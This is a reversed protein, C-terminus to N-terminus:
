GGAVAERERAALERKLVKGAASVPIADIFVVDRLRKYHTVRDNVAAMVSEATLAAGADDARRVVYAVPLEGAAEDPRGVVAAGAVGPVGFLIEELERPFVNYGKYLLMDKTRDVISLYGDEDLIGVDGTHFWGDADIAEATAEPRHAYGRMVQPGRICVEGREGTPLPDGGGLPRVTIETDFIPVGVTGAKRTGSRFTPNGTAMMTVETLGYGEGIVANPLLAQLREILSVPLPAAGSSVGRVHSWDQEAFGPVQLLAVFVPPAGGISTVRHRKADEVYRVPDFRMHIVTTTGGMVMGNLYGIAGMAHFWPTLNILTAEGLRTPCEDEGLVQRITVDGAEDLEPLSGSTWCSSQLVNTVVNRHPLEVGKSVGTTGGTYALHALDAAPDLGADLHRDTPDAALLDALDVDTAELGELRAAFDLTHAEGTVVVTQVPTAELASRVFPLVQDWTVLVKAGADTLQAALDAAPLLPNTPSFVAGAMVVGYYVAPYQRCNPVHVAVVDGRGVGHDALWNAVAAARAGLEEFTLEVDHDVFATRAGWRRVAARLISGVPVLPYELSRPLGPPWSAAPEQAADAPAPHTATM